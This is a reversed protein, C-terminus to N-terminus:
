AQCVYHGRNKGRFEEEKLQCSLGKDCPCAKKYRGNETKDRPDPNCVEGKQTPNSCIGSFGPLRTQAELCCQDWDCDDETRCVKQAYLEIGSSLGVALYLVCLTTLYKM